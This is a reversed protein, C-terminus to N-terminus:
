AATKLIRGLRDLKTKISADILQSGARIVLGGIISPDVRITLSTHAALAQNLAAELAKRRGEDLPRASVIDVQRLGRRDSVDDLFAAAIADLAALRNNTAVVGLFRATLDDFGASTAIAEITAVRTARDVLPSAAMRRLGPSEAWLERVATLDRAITDLMPGDALEFLAHAYRRAILSHSTVAL